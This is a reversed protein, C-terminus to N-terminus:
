MTVLTGEEGEGRDGRERRGFSVAAAMSVSEGGRVLAAMGSDKCCGVRVAGGGKSGLKAARISGLTAGGRGFGAGRRSGAVFFVFCIIVLSLRRSRGM